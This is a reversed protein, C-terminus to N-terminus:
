NNIEQSCTLGEAKKLAECERRSAEEREEQIRQRDYIAMKKNYQIITLDALMQKELETFFEVDGLYHRRCLANVLYSESKGTKRAREELARLVPVDFNITKTEKEYITKDKNLRRKRGMM